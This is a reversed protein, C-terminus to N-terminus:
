SEEGLWSAPYAPDDAEAGDSAPILPAFTDLMVAM